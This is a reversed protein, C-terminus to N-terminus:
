GYQIRLKLVLSLGLEMRPEWLLVSGLGLFVCLRGQLGATLGQGLSINLELRGEVKIGFEVWGWGM